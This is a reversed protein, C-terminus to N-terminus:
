RIRRSYKYKNFLSGNLTNKLLNFNVKKLPMIQNSQEKESSITNEELNEGKKRLIGKPIINISAVKGMYCNSKKKYTNPSKIYKIESDYSLSQNSDSYYNNNEEDSSEWFGEKQKVIFQKNKGNEKLVEKDSLEEDELFDEREKESIESKVEENQDIILYKKNLM